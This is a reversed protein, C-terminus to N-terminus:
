KKAKQKEIIRLARKNVRDKTAEWNLERTLFFHLKSEIDTVNGRLILSTPKFPSFLLKSKFNWFCDRYTNWSCSLNENWLSNNNYEETLRNHVKLTEQRIWDAEPLDM